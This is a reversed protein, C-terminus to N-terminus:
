VVGCRVGILISVTLNADLNNLLNGSFRIVRSTNLVTCDEALVIRVVIWIYVRM